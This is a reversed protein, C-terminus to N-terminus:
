KLNLYSKWVKCSLEVCLSMCIINERCVSLLLLEASFLVKLHEWHSMKFHEGTFVIIDSFFEDDFVFASQFHKWPLMTKREAEDDDYKM